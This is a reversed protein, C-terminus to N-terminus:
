FNPGCQPRRNSGSDHTALPVTLDHHIHETATSRALSAEKICAASTTSDGHEHLAFMSPCLTPLPVPEYESDVRQEPKRYLYSM